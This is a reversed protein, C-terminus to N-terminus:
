LEERDDIHIMLASGSVTSRQMCVHEANLRHLIITMVYVRQWLTRQLTSSGVNNGEFPATQNTLSSM